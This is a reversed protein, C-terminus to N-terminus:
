CRLTVPDPELLHPGEGEVEVYEGHDDDVPGVRGAASQEREQVLVGM